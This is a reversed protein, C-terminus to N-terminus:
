TPITPLFDTSTTSVSRIMEPTNKSDCMCVFLKFIHLKITWSFPLKEFSKILEQCAVRSAARSSASNEHFISQLQSPFRNFCSSEVQFFNCYFFGSTMLRVDDLVFHRFTKRESKGDCDKNLSCRSHIMQCQAVTPM